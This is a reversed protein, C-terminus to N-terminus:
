AAEKRVDSGDTFVYPYIAANHKEHMAAMLSEAMALNRAADTRQHALSVAQDLADNVGKALTKDDLMDALAKVRAIWQPAWIAGAQVAALFYTIHRDWLHYNVYRFFKAPLKAPLIGQAMMSQLAKDLYLYREATREQQWQALVQASQQPEQTDILPLDIFQAQEDRLTELLVCSQVYASEAYIDWNHSEACKALWTGRTVNGTIFGTMELWGISCALDFLRGTFTHGTGASRKRESVHIFHLSEPAAALRGLMFALAGPQLKDDDGFTWVWESDPAARMMARFKEAYDPTGDM